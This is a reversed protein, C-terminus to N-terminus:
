WLRDPGNYPPIEQNCNCSDIKTGNIRKHGDFGVLKGGKESTHHLQRNILLGDGGKWQCIWEVCSGGYGEEM